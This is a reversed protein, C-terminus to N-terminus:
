VMETPIVRLQLAWNNTEWSKTVIQAIQNDLSLDTDTMTVIDGVQLFGFRPACVYDIHEIPLAKERIKDFAVRAATTFDTIFSSEEIQKRSGYQNFSSQAKSNMMVDNDFARNDGTLTIRNRHEGHKVDFAYHLTYDNVLSSPDGLRKIGGISTFEEDAIIDLIPTPRVGSSLIDLVPKIGETGHIVSIPLFPIIDNELFELPTIETNNIYGSFEYQNLYPRLSEWAAFDVNQDGQSLCFLCIDGGGTLATKQSPSIYGGGDYWSVFFRASEDDVPNQFGSGHTFQVFSFIRGDSRVWKEITEVRNNGLDDFIRVRSAEVDHPAVALWIQNGSGHTAYIVYAPTSPYNVASYDKDFGTGSSGFVIPLVKGRHVELAQIINNGDLISSLPSLSPNVLDSLERAGIRAASGVAIDHFSLELTPSEVSFEVYGDERDKHGFVPEKIIGKLLITRREYSQISQQKALIYSLEASADELRNNKSHQLAINVNLLYCAFSTSYSQVNFGRAFVEEIYDPDGTMGGELTVFGDNSTIVLPETSPRYIRGNWNIELFFIPKAGKWDDSTPYLSM